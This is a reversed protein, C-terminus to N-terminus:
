EVARELSALVRVMALTDLRCYDLLRRRVLARRRADPEKFLGEYAISASTGDQISLRSYSLDPALAPLVAKISYSGRMEPTYYSQGRFPAMLDVIRAQVCEVAEAHDPMREALETLRGNEFSQNYVLVSGEDGVDALLSDLFPRRPDPGAEALFELHAPEEDVHGADPPSDIRHLSYQFPIQQYPRTGEYIPVAPQFSEFDLFYLPYAISGLFSRIAERDIRGNGSREADVQLRQKDSLPYDDPVAGVDVIGRRYLEFKKETSLRAIDFVSYSPVGRWCTGIFDCPYPDHCHPGIDIEPVAEAAVVAKLETVRRGVLQHRELAGDLVSVTRFLAHLDLAGRRVYSSDIHVISLDAIEVGAGTMVWYQLAADLLYTESIGTSSKVEFARYRPIGAPATEDRVLVDMAALVGEFLFAAEYIVPAGEAVLRSTQEISRAFQFPTPPSADVGGPFLERALVGVNTGRRFIAAQAASLPDRLKYSHKYLYLSKPCQMGRIFTSKSLIHRSAPKGASDPQRRTAM